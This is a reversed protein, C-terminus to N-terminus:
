TPDTKRNIIITKNLGFKQYNKCMKRTAGNKYTVKFM